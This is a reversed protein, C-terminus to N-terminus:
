HVCPGVMWSALQATGIALSFFASSALGALALFKSRALTGGEDPNTDEGTAHWNRWALWGGAISVGLAAVTLLNLIWVGSRSGCLATAVSFSVGLHLLWAAPPLLFGLWLTAIGRHGAYYREADERM